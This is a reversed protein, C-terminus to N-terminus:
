RWKGRFALGGGTTYWWDSGFNERATIPNVYPGPHGSLGESCIWNAIIVALKVSWPIDANVGALGEAQAFRNDYPSLEPYKSFDNSYPLASIYDARDTPGPFFAAGCHSNTGGVCPGVASDFTGPYASDWVTTRKRESAWRAELFLRASNNVPTTNGFLNRFHRIVELNWNDIEAVTPNTNDAFPNLEYFRERLGRVVYPSSPRIWACLQATTMSTPDIAIGDWTSNTWHSASLWGIGDPDQSTVSPVAQSLATQSRIMDAGSQESTITYEPTYQVPGTPEPPDPESPKSFWVEADDEYKDNHTLLDPTPCITAPFPEQGLSEDPFGIDNFLVDKPPPVLRPKKKKSECVGARVSSNAPRPGASGSGV